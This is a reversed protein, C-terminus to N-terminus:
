IKNEIAEKLIRKKSRTYKNDGYSFFYTKVM